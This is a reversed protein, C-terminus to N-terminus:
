KCWRSRKKQIHNENLIVSAQLIKQKHGTTEQITKADELCRQFSNLHEACTLLFDVFVEDKKQGNRHTRGITQEAEPASAQWATFLNRNFNQLNRGTGNAKISAIITNEGSAFEIPVNKSNVGKAGFYEFGSMKELARGFFGHRVWIIGPEKSGWKKCYDLASTDHWIAKQNARFTDRVALWNKLARADLEGNLCALAVAHPTDLTKSKSLIERVFSAWERRANLWNEPPRPDWVYHFGLSLEYAHRAVDTAMELAWGDPTEWLDRLTSFNRETAENVDYHVSTIYLSSLMEEKYSAVVGESALFRKQFGLRVASREGYKRIDEQTALALLPGPNTEQLPNKTNSEMANAWEEIVVHDLPAPSKEALALASLHAFDRISDKMLTGSLVVFRCKPNEKLYRVIRRTVGAKTNKLKHAEDAIILDPKYSDLFYADNV